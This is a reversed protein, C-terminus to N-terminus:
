NAVGKEKLLTLIQARTRKIERVKVKKSQVGTAAIKRKEISLDLTLQQLKNKLVDVSMARLEKIRM